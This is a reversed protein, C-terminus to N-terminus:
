PSLQGPYANMRNKRVLFKMKRNMDENFISTSAEIALQNRQQCPKIYYQTKRIIKLLGEREM